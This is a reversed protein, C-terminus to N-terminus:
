SVQLTVLTDLINVSTFDDEPTVINGLDGVHRCNRIKLLTIVTLRLIFGVPM